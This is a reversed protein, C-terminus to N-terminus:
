SHEGRRYIVCMTGFLSLDHVLWSGVLSFICLSLMHVNHFLSKLCSCSGRAVGIAVFLRLKFYRM